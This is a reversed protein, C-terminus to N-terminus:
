GYYEYFLQSIEDAFGYGCPEAYKVCDKCRLKFDSLLNNHQLFKLATEFNNVASNYYQETMDGCENTFQCATEPLTVLLDALLEPAPKLARFDAIAKKAVSFRLKGIGILTNTYFENIIIAKYKKFKEKEDPDLKGNHNADYKELAIKKLEERKEKADAKLKAKEEDSLKGDKDTDYKEKVKEKTKEKVPATVEARVLPAAVLLALALAPVIVYRHPM